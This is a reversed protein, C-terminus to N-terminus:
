NFWRFISIVDREQIAKACSVVEKLWRVRKAFLATTARQSRGDEKSKSKPKEQAAVQGESPAYGPGYYRFMLHKGFREARSVVGYKSLLRLEKQVFKARLGFFGVLETGLIGDHATEMIKKFIQARYSLEMTTNLSVNPTEDGDEGSREATRQYAPSEIPLDPLEDELSIFKIFDRYIKQDNADLKWRIKETAFLL